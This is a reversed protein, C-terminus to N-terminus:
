YIKVQICQGSSLKKFFKLSKELSFVFVVEM